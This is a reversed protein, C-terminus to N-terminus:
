KNTDETVQSLKEEYEEKSLSGQVDVDDSMNDM